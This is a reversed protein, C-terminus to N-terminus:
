FVNDALEGLMVPSDIAVGDHQFVSEGSFSQQDIFFQLVKEFVADRTAQDDHYLLKGNEIDRIAM